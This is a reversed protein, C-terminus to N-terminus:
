PASAHPEQGVNDVPPAKAFFVSFSHRPCYLEGEPLPGCGAGCTPDIRTDFASACHSLDLDAGLGLGGVLRQFEDSRASSSGRLVADRALLGCAALVLLGVVAPTLRSSFETM